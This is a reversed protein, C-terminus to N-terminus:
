CRQVMFTNDTLSILDIRVDCENIDKPKAKKLLEAARIADGANAADRIQSGKSPGFM